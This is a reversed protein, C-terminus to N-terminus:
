WPIAPTVSCMLYDTQYKEKNGLLHAPMWCVLVMDRINKLLLFSWCYSSRLKELVQVCLGCLWFMIRFGTVYAVVPWETIVTINEPDPDVGKRCVICTICLIKSAALICRKSNNYFNHERMITLFKWVHLRHVDGMQRKTLIWDKSTSM